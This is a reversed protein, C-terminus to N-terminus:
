RRMLAGEVAKWFRHGDEDGDALAQSASNVAFQHAARGHRERLEHAARWIEIEDVAEDSSVAVLGSMGDAFVKPVCRVTSGPAFEWTQDDSAEGLVRYRGHSLQKAEVPRWVDTGEGLLPMFIM